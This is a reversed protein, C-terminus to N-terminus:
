CRGCLSIGHLRQLLAFWSWSWSRSQHMWEAGTTLCECSGVNSNSKSKKQDTVVTFRSRSCSQATCALDHDVQHHARWFDRICGVATPLLLAVADEIVHLLLTFQHVFPEIADRHTSMIEFNAVRVRTLTFPCSKSYIGSQGTGTHTCM